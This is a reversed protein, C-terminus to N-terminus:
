SHFIFALIGACTQDLWTICAIKIRYKMLRPAHAFLVDVESAGVCDIGTTAFVGVGTGVNLGVGIGVCVDVGNFRWGWTTTSASLRGSGSSRARAGSPEM